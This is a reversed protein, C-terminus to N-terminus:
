RRTGPALASNMEDKMSGLQRETFRLFSIPRLALRPLVADLTLPFPLVFCTKRSFFRTRFQHAICGVFFFAALDAASQARYNM